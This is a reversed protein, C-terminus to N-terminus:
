VWKESFSPTIYSIHPQLLIDRLARLTVCLVNLGDQKRQPEKRAKRSM